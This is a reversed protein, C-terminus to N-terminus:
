RLKVQLGRYSEYQLEVNGFEFDHVEQVTLEGPFALDRVAFPELQTIGSDQLNTDLTDGAQSVAESIIFNCSASFSLCRKTLYHNTRM